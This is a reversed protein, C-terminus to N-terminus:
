EDDDSGGASRDPAGKYLVEAKDYMTGVKEVKSGDLLWRQKTSMNELWFAAKKYIVLWREGRLDSCVDDEFLIVGTKDLELTSQGLTTPDIIESGICEENEYEIWHTGDICAYWGETWEETGLKHGRYPRPKQKM